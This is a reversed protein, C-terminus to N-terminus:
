FKFEASIGAAYAHGGYTLREGTADKTYSREVLYHYQTMAQISVPKTWWQGLNDWRCEAGLALIHKDNDLFNTDGCQDPVPTKWFGYGARLIVDGLYAHDRIVKMGGGLKITYSDKFHPVPEEHLWDLYTSWQLYTAEVSLLLDNNFTYAFAAAWEDPTYYHAFHHNYDFSITLPSGDQPQVLVEIHNTGYDDMYLRRRYTLGLNLREIPKVQIGIIPAVALKTKQDEAIDGRLLVYTAGADYGLGALIAQLEEADVYVPGESNTELELQLNASAGVSLWRNVEMGAGVVAVLRHIDDYYFPHREEEPFQLRWWYLSDTPILIGAGLVLARGGLYDRLPRGLDLALGLHYQNATELDGPTYNGRTSSEATAKLDFTSYGLELNFGLDDHFDLGTLGAPNYYAASPDENLAVGMGALSQARIGLGSVEPMGARATYPLLLLLCFLLCTVARM